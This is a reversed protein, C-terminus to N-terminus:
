EFIKWSLNIYTHKVFFFCVRVIYLVLVLGLFVLPNYGLFAGILPKVDM